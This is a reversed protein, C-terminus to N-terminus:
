FDVEDLYSCVGRRVAPVSKLQELIGSYIKLSEGFNLLGFACYGLAPAGNENRTWIDYSKEQLDKMLTIRYEGADHVIELKQPDHELSIEPKELTARFHTEFAKNLNEVGQDVSIIKGRDEKIFTFYKGDQRLSTKVKRGNGRSVISFRIPESRFEICDNEVAIELPTPGLIDEAM